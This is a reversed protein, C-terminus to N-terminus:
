IIFTISCIVFIYDKHVDFKCSYSNGGPRHWRRQRVDNDLKGHECQRCQDGNGVHIKQVHRFVSLLEWRINEKERKLTASPVLYIHNTIGRIWDELVESDACILLKWWSSRWSFSSSLAARRSVVTSSFPLCHSLTSSSSFKIPFSQWM